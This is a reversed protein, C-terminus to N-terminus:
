DDQVTLEVSRRAITGTSATAEFTLVMAGPGTTHLEYTGSASKEVYGQGPGGVIWELHAEGSAPDLVGVDLAVIEGAVVDRNAVALATIEPRPPVAGVALTHRAVIAADVGAAV